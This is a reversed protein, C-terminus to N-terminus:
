KNQCGRSVHNNQLIELSFEEFVIRDFIKTTKALIITLKLVHPGSQRRLLKYNKIWSQLTM